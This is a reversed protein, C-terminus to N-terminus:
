KVQSMHPLIGPLNQHFPVIHRVSSQQNNVNLDPDNIVKLRVVFILNQRVDIFQYGFGAGRMDRHDVNPVIAPLPIQQFRMCRAPLDM